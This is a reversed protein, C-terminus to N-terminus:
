LGRCYGPQFHTVRTSGSVEREMIALQKRMEAMSAFTVEEGNLRATKVGRALNAKLAAIEETSYSLALGGKPCDM